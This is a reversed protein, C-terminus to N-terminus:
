RRTTVAVAWPQPPLTLSLLVLLFFRLAASRVTGCSTPLLPRQSAGLEDVVKAMPVAKLYGEGLHRAASFFTSM